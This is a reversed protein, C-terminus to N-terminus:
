VGREHCRSCKVSVKRRSSVLALRQMDVVGKIVSVMYQASTTYLDHRNVNTKIVNLYCGSLKNEIFTVTV